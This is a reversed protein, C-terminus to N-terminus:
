HRISPEYMADRYIKRMIIFFSAVFGGLILGKMLEILLSSETPELPSITEDLKIFMPRTDKLNIDAIEYNKLIESYATTLALIEKELIVKRAGPTSRALGLTQDQQGALQYSKKYIMAQISDAKQKLIVTTNLQNALIEEEFFLKLEMYVRDVMGLSLKENITSSNYQYIGSDENYSFTLLPDKIKEGGVTMNYIALFAKSELETFKDQDATKFTFNNWKPDKKAWKEVLGYEKLIDNIIFDQNIKYFFIKKLINKSRAVEIVKYPNFKGSNRIGFQGLLGGLSGGGSSGEVIFKTETIYKPKFTYHRFLFYGCILLCLGVVILWSKRIEEGFLIVKQILEKLTIEDKEELKNLNNEKM